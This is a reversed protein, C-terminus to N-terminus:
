RHGDNGIQHRAELQAVATALWNPTLPNEDYRQRMARYKKLQIIGIMEKVMHRGKHVARLLEEEDNRRGSGGGGNRLVLDDKDNANQNNDRYWSPCNARNRLAAKWVKKVHELGTPYDKGVVLVRKYLDRVLPHMRAPVTLDEPPLGGV